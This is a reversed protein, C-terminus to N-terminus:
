EWGFILFTDRALRRDKLNEINLERTPASLSNGSATDRFTNDLPILLDLDNPSSVDDM